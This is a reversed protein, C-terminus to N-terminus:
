VIKLKKRFLHIRKRYFWMHFNFTLPMLIGNLIYHVNRSISKLPKCLACTPIACFKYDSLTPYLLGGGFIRMVNYM